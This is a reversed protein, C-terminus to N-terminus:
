YQCQECQMILVTISIAQGEQIHGNTLCPFCEPQLMFMKFYDHHLPLEIEYVLLSLHSQSIYLNNFLYHEGGFLPSTVEKFYEVALLFELKQDSKTWHFGNLLLSPL